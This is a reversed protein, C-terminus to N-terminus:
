IIEEVYVSCMALNLMESEQGHIAGEQKFWLNNSNKMHFFVELSLHLECEFDKSHKEEKNGIYNPWNKHINNEM